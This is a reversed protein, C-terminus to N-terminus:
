FDASSESLELSTSRQSAGRLAVGLFSAVPIGVEGFFSAEGPLASAQGSLKLGPFLDAGTLLDGRIDM